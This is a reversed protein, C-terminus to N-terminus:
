QSEAMACATGLCSPCEAARWVQIGRFKSYGSGIKECHDLQYFRIDDYSSSECRTEMKLMMGVPLSDGVDCSM